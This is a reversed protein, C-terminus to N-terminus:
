VRYTACVVNGPIGDNGYPRAGKARRFRRSAISPSREGRSNTFQPLPCQRARGCRLPSETFDRRHHWLRWQLSSPLTQGRAPSHSESDGGKEVGLMNLQQAFQRGFEGNVRGEMFYYTTGVNGEHIYPNIISDGPHGAQLDSLDYALNTLENRARRRMGADSALRKENRGLARALSGGQHDQLAEVVFRYWNSHEPNAQFIPDYHIVVEPLAPPTSVARSVASKGKNTAGGEGLSALDLFALCLTAVAEAGEAVAELWEDQQAWLYARGIHEGGHTGANVVSHPTNLVGRALEELYALPGLFKNPHLGALMKRLDPNAKEAEKEAEKRGSQYRKWWDGERFLLTDNDGSIRPPPAILYGKEGLPSKAFGTPDAFDVPNHAAYVYPSPSDAYLPPDRSAFVGLEPDYLRRPTRFIKTTGLAAMGRWMPETRPSSLPTVGDGAFTSSAGFVEYRHREIVTGGADTVCMTSLGEDQHMFAGGSADTVCFPSTWLPHSSRQRTGGPGVSSVEHIQTAGAFWREFTQGDTSGASVRSLADYQLEALVANTVRDRVRSVRNLADLDYIYRADMTRHGDLNYSIADTGAAAVRHDNGLVYKEGTPGGNLGKDEPVHM